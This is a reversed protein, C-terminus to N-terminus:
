IQKRRTNSVFRRNVITKRPSVLLSKSMEEFKVELGYIHAKNVYALVYQPDLELAKNYCNLAEELRDLYSLAVGKKNWVIVEMKELTTEQWMGKTKTKSREKSKEKAVLELVKDCTKDAESWKELNTLPILKNIWPALASPNLAISKDYCTLAEDYKGLKDLIRGNLEWLNSLDEQNLLDERAIEHAKKVYELANEYKGHAYSDEAKKMNEDFVKKPEKKRGFIPSLRLV